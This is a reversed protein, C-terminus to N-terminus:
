HSNEHRVTPSAKQLWTKLLRLYKPLRLDIDKDKKGNFSYFYLILVSKATPSRGGRGREPLRLQLSSSLRKHPHSATGYRWRGELNPIPGSAPKFSNFGCALFCNRSTWIMFFSSCVPCSLTNEEKNGSCNFEYGLRM